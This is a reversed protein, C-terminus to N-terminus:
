PVAAGTVIDFALEKVGPMRVVFRYDNTSPVQRSTLSAKVDRLVPLAAGGLRALDAATYRKTAAGGLYLELSTVTYTLMPGPSVVLRAVAIKGATPSWALDVAAPVESYWAYTDVVADTGAQVRFVTTTPTKGPVAKVYFTGDLYSTVYPLPTALRKATAVASVLALVLVALYLRMISHCWELM